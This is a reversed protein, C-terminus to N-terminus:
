RCSLYTMSQSSTSFFIVSWISISFCFSIMKRRKMRTKMMKKKMKKVFGGFYLWVELRLVLEAEMGEVLAGIEM